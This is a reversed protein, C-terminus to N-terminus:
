ILITMVTCVVVSSAMLICGFYIMAENEEVLAFLLGFFFVTLMAILLDM